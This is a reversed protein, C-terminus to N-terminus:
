DAKLGAGCLPLIVKGQFSHNNEKNYDFFGAFTAATTPEVYFGKEALTGLNTTDEVSYKGKSFANYKTFKFDFKELDLMGGCDCKFILTKPDHKKGCENCVYNVSMYDGEM